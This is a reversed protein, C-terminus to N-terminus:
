TVIGSLYRFTAAGEPLPTVSPQVLRLEFETGPTIDNTITLDWASNLAVWTQTVISGGNIEWFDSVNNGSVPVSM